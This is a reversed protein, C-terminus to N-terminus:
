PETLHFFLIFLHYLNIAFRVLTIELVCSETDKFRLKALNLDQCDMLFKCIFRRECRIRKKKWDVIVVKEANAVNWLDVLYLEKEM